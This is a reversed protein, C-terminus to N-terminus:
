QYTFPHQFSTHGPRFGGDSHESPGKQLRFGGDSHESAGKQFRFGGDSYESAGKQLRFGGDSYESAEKQFRFGRDSYESAGKQFRFGRDSYESPSSLFQNSASAHFPVARIGSRLHAETFIRREAAQELSNPRYLYTHSMKMPNFTACCKLVMVNIPSIKVGSPLFDPNM